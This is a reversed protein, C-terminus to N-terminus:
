IVGLFSLEELGKKMLEKTEKLDIKFRHSLFKLAKLPTNSNLSRLFYYMFKTIEFHYVEYDKPDQYMLVFSEKKPQTNIVDFNYRKIKATKSLKYRTKWNFKKTKHRNQNVYLDLEILEFDMTQLQSLKTVLKKDKVFNYFEKPSQWIYPTKPKDKIFEKILFYLKEESIMSVFKPYCSSIVEVFRHKVLDEYVRHSNTKNTEIDRVKNIFDKEINFERM